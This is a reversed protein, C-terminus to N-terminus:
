VDGEDIVTYIKTRENYEFLVWRPKEVGYDWGVMRRCKLIKWRLWNVLRHWYILINNKM